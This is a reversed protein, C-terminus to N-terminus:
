GIMNMMAALGQMAEEAKSDDKLIDKLTEGFDEEGDFM